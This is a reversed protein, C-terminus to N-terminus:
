TEGCLIEGMLEEPTCITPMNYASRVCLESINKRIEANAIHRCNWTLLYDIGHIAAIAIHIADEAYKEPVIKAFIIKRTLDTVENNMQLLPIDKLISLRREAAEKDGRGAEKIVLQSVYLEFDKRRFDWWAQTIQQHGATILDRSIRAALYSAVSTEIYVKAKMDKMYLNTKM